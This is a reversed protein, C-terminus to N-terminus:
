TPDGELNFARSICTACLSDGCPECQVRGVGPRRAGWAMKGVRGVDEVKGLGGGENSFYLLSPSLALSLSLTLPISHVM